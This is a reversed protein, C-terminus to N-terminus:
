NQITDVTDLISDKIPYSLKCDECTLLGTVIDTGFLLKNVKDNKSECFETVDTQTIEVINFCEVIKSVLAGDDKKLINIDLVDYAEPDLERVEEAEVRLKSTFPCNKCKLVGLLFPKM